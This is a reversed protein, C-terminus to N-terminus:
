DAVETAQGEEGDQDLPVVDVAVHVEHKGGGFIVGKLPTVDSYDRGCALVIHQNGAVIRNTPDLDIWTGGPMDGSGPIWVSVWAHSADAGALKPRGPPPKTELYGSVYRAALGLGRLGALFLHAFDQCVGKRHELVKALPTGIHSFGSDYQFEDFIRQNLDIAAALLPRGPSFSPMVFAQLAPLDFATDPILPSAYAFRALEPGVAAERATEWAPSNQAAGAQATEDLPVRATVARQVVSEAVIEIKRHAKELAFYHVRNGFYDRREARTQPEPLIRLRASECLQHENELPLLHCENHSLTVPKAYAYRTRHTIRYRNM